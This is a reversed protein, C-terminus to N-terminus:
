HKVLLQRVIGRRLQEQAVALRTRGLADNPM